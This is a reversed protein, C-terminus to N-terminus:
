ENLALFTGYQNYFVEFNQNYSEPASIVKRKYYAMLAPMRELKAKLEVCGM